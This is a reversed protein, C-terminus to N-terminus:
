CYDLYKRVLKSIELVSLSCASNNVYTSTHQIGAADSQKSPSSLSAHKALDACTLEDKM